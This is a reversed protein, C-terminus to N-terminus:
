NQAVATMVRGPKRGTQVAVYRQDAESLQDFAVLRLNGDSAKLVANGDLRGVFQADVLM